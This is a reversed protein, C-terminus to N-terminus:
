VVCLMGVDLLGMERPQEGAARGIYVCPHAQVGAQWSAVSDPDPQGATGLPDEQYRLIQLIGLAPHIGQLHQQMDLPPLCRPPLM